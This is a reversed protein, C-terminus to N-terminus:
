SLLDQGDGGSPYSANYERERQSGPHETAERVYHGTRWQRLAASRLTRAPRSAAVGAQVTRNYYISHMEQEYWADLRASYAQPSENPGQPAVQQYMARNVTEKLVDDAHMDAAIDRRTTAAHEEDYRERNLPLPAGNTNIYTVKGEDDFEAAGNAVLQQKTEEDANNFEATMARRYAGRSMGGRPLEVTSRDVYNNGVLVMNPDNRPDYGPMFEDEYDLKPGKRMKQALKDLIRRTRSRKKPAEPVESASEAAVEIPQTPEEDEDLDEAFAPIVATDRDDAFFSSTEIAAPPTRRYPQRLPAADRVAPMEPFWDDAFLDDDGATGATEATRVIPRTVDENAPIWPGLNGSMPPKVTSPRVSADTRPRADPHPRPGTRTSVPALVPEGPVPVGPVEVVDSLEANAIRPIHDALRGASPVETRQETAPQPAASSETLYANVLALVPAVHRADSAADFFQGAGNGQLAVARSQPHAPQPHEVAPAAVFQQNLESMPTVTDDWVFDAAREVSALSSDMLAHFEAESLTSLFEANEEREKLAAAAKAAVRESEAKLQDDAIQRAVDAEYDAVAKEAAAEAAAAFLDPQADALSVEAPAHLRAAEAYFVENYLKNAYESNAPAADVSSQVEPVQNAQGAVPGQSALAHEPSALNLTFETIVPAHEQVSM